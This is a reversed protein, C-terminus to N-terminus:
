RVTQSGTVVREMAKIFKKVLPGPKPSYMLGFPLTYGWDVPLIKLFPHVMKWNDITMLIDNSNECQNFVAVSYFEFDKVHIQPHNQWIDNRLNDIFHNWGRQILLLHEGYLDQVQLRERSALPHYISVACRVPAQWLELAQCQRDKLFDSDFPGAVVDITEGLRKLIQRANEPTNEFTVFQFKLEPCDGQIQPLFETLFHGPTMPSTGIRIVNERRGTEKARKEAGKCYKVIYKADQYLSKGAETLVLGRHTRVFLSVGLSNELLKIQKIVAPPTVHSEEAAKNFSGAEAVRIFTGLQPNYM